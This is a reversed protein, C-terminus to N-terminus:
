PRLLRARDAPEFRGAGGRAGPAKGPPRRRDPHLGQRAYTQKGRGRVRPPPNPHPHNLIVLAAPARIVRVGAREWSYTPSPPLNFGVPVVVGAAVGSTAGYGG